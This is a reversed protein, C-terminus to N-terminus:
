RQRRRRFYANRAKKAQIDKVNKNSKEAKRSKQSILGPPLFENLSKLLHIFDKQFNFDPKLSRSFFIALHFLFKEMPPSWARLSYRNFERQFVNGLPDSFREDFIVVPNPDGTMPAEEYYAKKLKILLDVAINTLNDVPSSSLLTLKTLKLDDILQDIERHQEELWEQEVYATLDRKQQYPSKNRM